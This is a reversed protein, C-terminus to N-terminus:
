IWNNAKWKAITGKSMSEGGIEKAIERMSMGSEYMQKAREKQEKSYTSKPKHRFEAENVDKSILEPWVMTNNDDNVFHFLNSGSASEDSFRTKTTTIVRQNDEQTKRIICVQDAYDLLAGPGFLLDSHTSEHKTGKNTHNTMLITANDAVQQWERLAKYFDAVHQNKMESIAIESCYMSSLMKFGDIIILTPNVDSIIGKIQSFKLDLYNIASVTRLSYKEHFGKSLYYDKASTLMTNYDAEPIELNMFLVNGHAEIPYGIFDPAEYISAYALHISLRTKGSSREAGMINIGGKKVLPMVVFSIKYNEYEQNLQSDSKVMDSYDGLLSKIKGKYM